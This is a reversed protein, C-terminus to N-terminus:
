GEINMINRLNVIKDYRILIDIKWERRRGVTAIRCGDFGLWLSNIIAYGRNPFGNLKNMVRM